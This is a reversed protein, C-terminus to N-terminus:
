LSPQWLVYSEPISYVGDQQKGRLADVYEYPAPGGLSELAGPYKHTTVDSYDEVSAALTIGMSQAKQKCGELINHRILKSDVGNRTYLTDVFLVPKNKDDQLIRLIVRGIIKGTRKERAVMLRIKGDLFAALLCENYYTNGLITQCSNDVETGMLVLDEWADTDEITFPLSSDQTEIPLSTQWKKLLEPNKSFLTKLHVSEPLDYRIQPFTKDLVANAFNGLLPMLRDKENQSLTQLRAAYIILANSYRKSQGFTPFFQDMVETKLYFAKWMFAQWAHVLEATNTVSNLITEQAFLLLSNVAAIWNYQSNRYEALRIDFAPKPERDGKKPSAFILGLIQEQQHLTSSKYIACMMENIPIMLKADKYKTEPLEECIKKTMSPSIGKMTGFLIVLHLREEKLEGMLTTLSTRKEPHNYGEILASTAQTRLTPDITKLISNLLSGMSEDCLPSKKIAEKSPDLTYHTVLTYLWLLDKHQQQLNTHKNFITEEILALTKNSVELAIALKKLDVFATKLTQKVQEKKEATEFYFPINIKCIEALKGFPNQSTPSLLVLINALEQLKSFDNTESARHFTCALVLQLIKIRHEDLLSYYRLYQIAGLGNQTAAIKAIEFRMNQDQIGYNQIYQSTIWGNQAAATKAIEFLMNQDTIGYSQICESAGWGSQAAAIKAIEFLMNQNQIGYNQIYQSIGWGDQSAAIKAIEFFMNQDQIGYNRVYKSTAGGNQAAAIKAIEFLMNQDTIGYNQISKSTKMGDKAADAKAKEFSAKLKLEADPVASATVQHTSGLGPTKGEVLPPIKFQCFLTTSTGNVENFFGTNNSANPDINSTM